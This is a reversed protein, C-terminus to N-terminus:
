KLNNLENNHTDEEFNMENTIREIISLRMLADSTLRRTQFIQLINKDDCISINEPIPEGNGCVFLRHLNDWVYPRYAIGIKGNDVYSHSGIKVEYRM